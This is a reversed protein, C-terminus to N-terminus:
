VRRGKRFLLAGFALAVATIAVHILALAAVLAPPGNAELTFIRVTLPESGPPYLLVPTELDRLCFVFVLLWAGAIGARHMPMMVRVLRRGYHAGFVAAAHEMDPPSQAFTAACVRIGLVAYRAVFALAIVVLTGYIFQTPARNWAGIMGVGLVAAPMVFGLVAIADLWRVGRAQRVLGHGLVVGIGTIVTAAGASAALSNWPTAGLWEGARSFGVAARICLGVLPLTGSIAVVHAGLSVPIRWRRLRLRSREASRLGATAVFRAYAGTTRRELAFVAIAVGVLPLSLVAADGPAYDMGGLRAFVAVPYTDVRLFMPVGLESFALSFVAVAALGMAPSCMPALIRTAVRWPGAAALGAEEFSPDVGRVSLAVLSTVIPTLAFALVLVVGFADFLLAGGLLHFWGLALLFPPLFLPFAHLAWAVRAGLVDFRGFLVGLPLGIVLSAATVAASLCVSRVLLAGTRASGLMPFASTAGPANAHSGTVEPVLALLPPAVACALLMAAFVLAIEQQRDRGM